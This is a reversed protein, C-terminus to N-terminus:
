EERLSKASPPFSSLPIMRDFELKGDRIFYKCGEPSRFIRGSTTPTSTPAAIYLVRNESIARALSFSPQVRVFPGVIKTQPGDKLIRAACDKAIAPPVANQPPAATQSNAIKAFSLMMAASLAVSFCIRLVIEGWDEVPLVIVITWWYNCAAGTAGHCPSPAGRPVLKLKPDIAGTQGEV